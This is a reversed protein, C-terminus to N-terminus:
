PPRPGRYCWSSAPRRTPRWGARRARGRGLHRRDSGWRSFTSHSGTM